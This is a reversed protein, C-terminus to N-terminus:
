FILSEMIDEHVDEKLKFVDCRRTVNLGDGQLIYRISNATVSTTQSLMKYMRGKKGVREFWEGDIVVTGKGEIVGGIERSDELSYMQGLARLLYYCELM